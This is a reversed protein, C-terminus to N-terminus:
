MQLRKLATITTTLHRKATDLQKIDACIDQVMVDSQKAKHKIDQIKGFLDQSSARVGLDRGAAGSRSPVVSTM